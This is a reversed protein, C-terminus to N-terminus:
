SVKACIAYVVLRWVFGAAAPEYRAYATWAGGSTGDVAQQPYSAAVTTGDASIGHGGGGLVRKGEPCFATATKGVETDLSTYAPIIEYGSIGAPGVDGNIGPDGKPGPPGPINVPVIREGKKCAARVSLKGSKDACFIDDSWANSTMLLTSAAGLFCATITRVM